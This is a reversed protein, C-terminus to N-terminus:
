PVKSIEGPFCTFNLCKCILQHLIMFLAYMCIHVLNTALFVQFIYMTYVPGHDDDSPKDNVWM